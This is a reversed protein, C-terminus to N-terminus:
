RVYVIFEVGAASPVSLSVMVTKIYDVPCSPMPIGNEYTHIRRYVNKNSVTESLLGNSERVASWAVNLVGASLAAESDRGFYLLDLSDVKACLWLKLSGSNKRAFVDLGSISVRGNVTVTGVADEGSASSACSPSYIYVEKVKKSELTEAGNSSFDFVTTENNDVTFRMFEEWAKVEGSEGSPFDVAQWATPKGNSDVATIKAIQGVSAGSQILADQKGADIVDQAEATRYATMDPLENQTIYDGIPQKGALADGVAKADAAKGSQTLTTDLEVSAGGGGGSQAAENIADVLNDKSTTALEALNGIQGQIATFWSKAPEEPPESPTQGTLSNLVVTEWTASKAITGNAIYTLECKGNGAIATEASTVTFRIDDGNVEVVVPYANEDGFRRVSLQFSGDGYLSSWDSVIGPWVVRVAKDEGQRGLIIKKNKQAYVTRM